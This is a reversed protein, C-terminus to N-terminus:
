INLLGFMIFFSLAVLGVGIVKYADAGSGFVSRGYSFPVFDDINKSWIIMAIGIFCILLGTFFNAM